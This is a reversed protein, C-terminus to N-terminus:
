QSSRLSSAIWDEKSVRSQKAESAIVRADNGLKVRCDMWRSLTKPLHHIRPDLGRMVLSRM